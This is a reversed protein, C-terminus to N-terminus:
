NLNFTLGVNFTINDHRDGNPGLGKSALFRSYSIGSSLRVSSNIKTEIGAEINADLFLNSVLDGGQLIGKSFDKNALKSNTSSRKIGNFDPRADTPLDQEDIEFESALIGNIAFNANIYPSVKRKEKNKLFDYKVGLPIRATHFAIEKLSSQKLGERLSGYTEIVSIPEYKMRNYELGTAMKLHETGMAFSFGAKDHRSILTAAENQYVPDFPSRIIDLGSGFYTRMETKTITSAYLEPKYIPLTNIEPLAAELKGAKNAELISMSALSLPAFAINPITSSLSTVPKNILIPSAWLPQKASAFGEKVQRSPSAIARYARVGKTLAELNNKNINKYSEQKIKQVAKNNIPKLINSNIEDQYLHAFMAPDVEQVYKFNLGLYSLGGFLLLIIVSIEALKAFYLKTRIGQERELREKLQLWHSDSYPVHHEKIKESLEKDFNVDEFGESKSLLQSFQDWDSSNPSSDPNSLKSKFIDDFKQNTM